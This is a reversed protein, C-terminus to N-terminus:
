QKCSECQEVAVDGFDQANLEFVGGPPDWLDLARLVRGRLEARKFVVRDGGRFAAVVEIVNGGIPHDAALTEAMTLNDVLLQYCPPAETDTAPQEALQYRYGWRSVEDAVNPLRPDLHFRVEDLNAVGDLDDDSNTDDRTPATGLLVELGDLVLDGDSDPNLPLTGSAREECDRLGDRDRDLAADGACGDDATRPDLGGPTFYEIGDRYGDGDSDPNAPDLGLQQELADDLGDSDSDAVLEGNRLLTHRNFVLASALRYFVQVPTRDIVFEFSQGEPINSFTGNGMDALTQLLGQAGAVDGDPANAATGLFASNFRIEAVRSAVQDMLYTMAPFLATPETVGVTPYGDSLWYVLYHTRAAQDTSLTTIDDLIFDIVTWLTDSYNTGGQATSVNQTAGDLITLDRTFGFTQRRPEDSFTIIGFSVTEEDALSTIANRVAQERRGNPDNWSNSLSTDIVFLVRYPAYEQTPAPACTAGTVSQREVAVERIVHQLDAYTCGALTGLLAIACGFRIGARTTMADGM